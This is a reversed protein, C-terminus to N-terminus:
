KEKKPEVIKNGNKTIDINNQLNSLTKKLYENKKTLETIEKQMSIAELYNDATVIAQIQNSLDENETKLTNALTQLEKIDAM